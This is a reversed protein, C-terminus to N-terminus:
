GGARLTMRHIEDGEGGRVDHENATFLDSPGGSGDM